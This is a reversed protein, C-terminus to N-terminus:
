QIYQWKRSIFVSSFDHVVDIAHLEVCKIKVDDSNYLSNSKNLPFLSITIYSKLGHEHRRHPLPLSLSKVWIRM